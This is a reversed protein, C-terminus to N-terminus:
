SVSMKRIKKILTAIGLDRANKIGLDPIRSPYFILIRIRSGM